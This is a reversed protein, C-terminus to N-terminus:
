SKFREHDGIKTGSHQGKPSTGIFHSTIMYSPLQSGWEGAVASLETLGQREDFSAM